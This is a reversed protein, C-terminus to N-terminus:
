FDVEEVAGESEVGLNALEDDDTVERVPLLMPNPPNDSDAFEDEFNITEGDGKHEFTFDEDATLDQDKFEFVKGELFDCMDEFGEFERVTEPGFINELHGVLIMWKSGVSGAHNLGLEFVNDWDKDLAEVEYLIDIDSSYETQFKDDQPDPESRVVRGVFNERTGSNEEAEDTSFPNPSMIHRSRSDIKVGYM